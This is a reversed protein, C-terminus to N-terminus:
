TPLCVSGPGNVQPREAADSQDHQHEDVRSRARSRLPLELFAVVDDDDAISKRIPHLMVPPQLGVQLGLQRLKLEHDAILAEGAVADIM